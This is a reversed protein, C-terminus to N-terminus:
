CGARRRPADTATNVVRSTQASRILAPGLAEPATGVSVAAGGGDDPDTESYPCM